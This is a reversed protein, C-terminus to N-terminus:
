EKEKRGTVRNQFMSGFEIRNTTLWDRFITRLLNSVPMGYGKALAKLFRREELTFILSVGGKSNSTM